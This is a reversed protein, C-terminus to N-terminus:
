SASTMALSKRYEVAEAARTITVEKPHHQRVVNIIDDLDVRFFEKRENVRNVRRQTFARHLSTELAPADDSFIVAHVDFQFPVSADGLEKVRDLPELRRTMGIKYVHEGFSGINSIIYVHGSRTMQARSIAREKNAHAEDLRRQLEEMEALLKQQKDGIAREAEERAKALAKEYRLEEKEAELQAKELERQAVEEERMQERIRRQEEKEEQLKEEYEHALRLEAMRLERYENTIFCQQVSALGNIIEHAKYIRAEMVHINNYRVKAIAADCEGNFARLMLKITQNTQKRGEVKSGNVSWESHCVAATKAKIMEKQEDRIRDLEAQYQVAEAFNYHPKYFGFSQLNAEEDLEALDMTLKEISEKLTSLYHSGAVIQQRLSEVEGAASARHRDIEAIARRREEEAALAQRDLEAQAAERNRQLQAVASAREDEMARRQRQIEEQAAEQNRRLQALVRASEEDADIVGRFRETLRHVEASSRRYSVFAWVALAIAVGALLLAVALSM